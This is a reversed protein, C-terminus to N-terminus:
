IYIEAHNRFGPQVTRDLQTLRSGRMFVTRKIKLIPRHWFLLSGNSGRDLRMTRLVTFELIEQKSIVVIKARLTNTNKRGFFVIVVHLRKNTVKPSSKAAATLLIGRWVLPLSSM